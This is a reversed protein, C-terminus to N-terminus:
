KHGNGCGSTRGGTPQTSDKNRHPEQGMDEPETTNSGGPVRVGTKGGEFRLHSLLKFPNTLVHPSLRLHGVSETRGGDRMEHPNAVASPNAVLSPNM